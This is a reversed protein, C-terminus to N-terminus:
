VFETIRANGTASAWIGAIAGVYGFPVEYYGGGAMQISYSTTSATSGLKLYLIATSDNYITAGKRATNSVLIAVTTASGAVSTQTPTTSPQYTQISGTSDINVRNSNTSDVLYVRGIVSGDDENAIKVHLRNSSDINAANTGNNLGVTGILNSGANLGIKGTSDSAVTVRLTGASSAGNGADTATSAISTLNMNGAVTMRNSSDVNVGRENGAADRFTVYLNRNNSMRVNGFQNETITTPSTDDFQGVLGAALIGNGSYNLGNATTTLGHSLGDTWGVGGITVPQSPSAGEASIGQIRALLNASNSQTVAITQSAAVNITGIVKTTEAAITAQVVFTGANTVAITQGSAINVAGITNTGSPLANTIATVADVSINGGSSINLGRENGAGDRITTYANRNASLRQIGLRDETMAGPSVDDFQGYMTSRTQLGNTNTLINAGQSGVAAGGTGDKDTVIIQLGGRSDIQLDGRQGDTFTPLTSNYRAGIKIPNGADSSGSAVNGAVPITGTIGITGTVPLPNTSGIDGENVGDAGMTLKIRQFLVSSIEDAAITKGLGPTVDINDAM